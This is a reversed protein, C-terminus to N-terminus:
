LSDLWALTEKRNEWDLLEDIKSDSRLVSQTYEIFRKQTQRRRSLDLHLYAMASQANEHGLRNKIDTISFGSCLMNVACSHRFSHAPNLQKLRKPSLARSLYKKCLRHIGHRTLGQRRQNVFLRNRYLPKPVIRYKTIYWDILQATRPWLEIMRYRNGKGLIALTKNQPDFYDLNLTAVETARAGSDYLLNLIAYDRPGETTKLDVAKFVKLAEEHHLFGVLGKQARKQPINLITDAVKRNEPYVLRIMKAFSKLTALRLNRTRAINNRDAELHDLFACILQYSLHRLKLSEIKVSRYQAAFPLFLAFTDRYSKVTNDSIGKVHPLYYDFFQHICVTLKM